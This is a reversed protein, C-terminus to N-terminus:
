RHHPSHGDVATLHRDHDAADLARSADARGDARLSDTRHDRLLPQAGVPIGVAVLLVGSPPLPAGVETPSRVGSTPLRGVRRQPISAVVPESTAAGSRQAPIAPSRFLPGPPKRPDSRAPSRPRRDKADSEPRMGLDFQPGQEVEDAAGSPIRGHLRVYARPCNRRQMGSRPRMWACYAQFRSRGGRACPSPYTSEGSM